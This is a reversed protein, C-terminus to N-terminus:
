GVGGGVAGVRAYEIRARRDFDEVAVACAHRAWLPTGLDAALVRWARAVALYGDALQLVASPDDVTSAAFLAKTQQAYALNWQAVAEHSPRAM